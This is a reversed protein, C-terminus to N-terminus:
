IIELLHPLSKIVADPRFGACDPLDERLEVSRSDGAFLACKMGAKHATTM